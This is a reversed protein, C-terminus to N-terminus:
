QEYLKNFLNLYSEFIKYVKSAKLNILDNEDFLHPSINKQTCKLLYRATQLLLIINDGEYSSGADAEM